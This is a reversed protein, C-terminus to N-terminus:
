KAALSTSVETSHLYCGAHGMHLLGSPWITLKIHMYIILNEYTPLICLCTESFTIIVRNWHPKEKM